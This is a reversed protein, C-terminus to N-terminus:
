EVDVDVASKRQVIRCAPRQKQVAAPETSIHQKRSLCMHRTPGRSAAAKSQECPLHASRGPFRVVLAHLSSYDFCGGTGYRPHLMGYPFPRQSSQSSRPNSQPPREDHQSPRTVSAPLKSVSAPDSRGTQASGTTPDATDVRMQKHRRANAIDGRPLETAPRTYNGDRTGDRPGDTLEAAHHTTISTIEDLAFCCPRPWDSTPPISSTAMKTRSHGSLAIAM